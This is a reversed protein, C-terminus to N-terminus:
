LVCSCNGRLGIDGIRGAGFEEVVEYVEGGEELHISGVRSKRLRGSLRKVFL